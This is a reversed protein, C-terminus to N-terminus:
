SDASGATPRLDSLPDEPQVSRFEKLLSRAEIALGSAKRAAGAGVAHWTRDQDPSQGTTTAEHVLAKDLLRVLPEMEGLSFTCSGCRVVSALFGIARQTSPDMSRVLNTMDDQTSMRELLTDIPDAAWTTSATELPAGLGPATFVLLLPKEEEYTQAVAGPQGAELVNDFTIGSTEELEALWGSEEHLLTHRITGDLPANRLSLVLHDGAPTKVLLRKILRDEYWDVATLSSARTTGAEDQIETMQLYGSPLDPGHTRAEEAAEGPVLWGATLALAVLFATGAVKSSQMGLTMNEEGPREGQLLLYLV